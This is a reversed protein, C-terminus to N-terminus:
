EVMNNQDQHDCLEAWTCPSPVCVCGSSSFLTLKAVYDSYTPHAIDRHSDSFFIIQWMPIAGQNLGLAIPVVAKPDSM